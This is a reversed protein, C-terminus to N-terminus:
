VISEGILSRARDNDDTSIAVLAQGDERRVHHMSRINVHGDAIRRSLQALAGPRDDVYALLVDDTVAEYGAETLVKLAEDDREIAMRVLAGNGHAEVIIREIGIAHSALVETVEALIGPRNPVVVRINRM